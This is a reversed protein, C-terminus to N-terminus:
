ISSRRRKHINNTFFIIMLLFLAASNYLMINLWEKKSKNCNINVYKWHEVLGKTEEYNINPNSLNKDYFAVTSSSKESNYVYYEYKYASYLLNILLVVVIFGNSKKM